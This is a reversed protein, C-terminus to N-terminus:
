LLRYMAVGADNLTRHVEGRHWLYNLCALSEGTALSLLGADTEDISRGFLAVFVDVVRKPERLIKRLRDLSREQSA